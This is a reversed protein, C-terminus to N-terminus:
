PNGRTVLEVGGPAHPAPVVTFSAKTVPDIWSLQPPGARPDSDLLGSSKFTDGFGVFVTARQRTVGSNAGIVSIPAELDVRWRVLVSAEPMPAMVLEPVSSVRKGGATFAYLAAGEPSYMSAVAGVPVGFSMVDSREWQMANSTGLNAALETALASFSVVIQLQGSRGCMPVVWHADFTRVTIESLNAGNVSAYPSAAYLARDCAALANPNIAAGHAATWEGLRSSSVDKVYRTAISRAQTETL